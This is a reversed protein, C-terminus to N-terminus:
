WDKVRDSLPAAQRRYDRREGLIRQAARELFASVDEAALPALKDDDPLNFLKGRSAQKREGKGAKATDSGKEVGKEDGQGPETKAFGNDEPRKEPEKSGQPPPHDPPDPNESSRPPSKRAEIWLLTALELNHRADKLLDADAPKLTLCQRYRDLAERLLTQDEPGRKVLCNALDYSARARRLPAALPDELCRRYHLEAERYRQLRYLAAAKNFAILGPDTGREEADEYCKVARDFNGGLFAANGARVLEQPAREPGASVLLLALVTMGFAPVPRCALRPRARILLSVALLGLAAGLFWAYRPRFLPLDATSELESETRRSGPEIVERFLKGLPLAHTRASLYIGGTRRAIEQLPAERLRTQVVKDQFRLVDNRFPISSDRDPDGVGVAHIPIRAARAAEAGKIYEEDENAPDDGDSILLIDQAGKFRAEHTEVALRLASGIRTGSGDEAGARMEPPLNDADLQGLVARLHDYDGTLPFLRLPKGAFVVLGVRHGGHRELTDALDNLARLAREQRSPQEALMSRSLDLVIVLDRGSAAAAEPGRDLGWQPGALGVILVSIGTLFLGNRVIEAGRRRRVLAQLAPVNGLRALMQRRRYRAWMLMLSLVPVLGLLWLMDPNGFLPNM